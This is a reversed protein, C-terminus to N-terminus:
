AVHEEEVLKNNVFVDYKKSLKKILGSKNKFLFWANPGPPTPVPPFGSSPGSV